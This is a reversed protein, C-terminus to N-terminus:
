GGAVPPIFELTDGDNVRTELGSPLTSVDTGNLFINVHPYLEGQQNLWHPKLISASELFLLVAKYVTTQEPLAIEFNKQRAILKFTAYLRVKINM